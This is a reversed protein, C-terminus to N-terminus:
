NNNRGTWRTALLATALTVACAGVLAALLAPYGVTPALSSLVVPLAFGAYSVSYYLGVVTPLTAPSALRQVEILGAVLCLGYALGLVLAVLGAFLPSLLITNAFASGVGALMIVFGVLLARGGTAANIRSVLPQIVAAAGLTGVTLLAAYAVTLSGLQPAMLQPMTAYALGAAGFVWPAIPAIILLVRPQAIIRGVGTWAGRPIAVRSRRRTEPSNFVLVLAVSSLGFHVVYPVFTPNPAWQAIAGSVGAGVGFGLTLALSSRKPGANGDVDDIQAADTLERVWTSGVSMAVGVSLGAFSRGVCLMLESNLGASLVVSATLGAILGIVLTPRRGWRNSVPGAALLGPALGAVYTALLLNVEIQSHHGLREYLPLLPTFHNGGWAMTFIAAAAPLWSRRGIFTKM